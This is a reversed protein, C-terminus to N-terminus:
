CDRHKQFCKQKTIGSCHKNGLFINEKSMFIFFVEPKNYENEWDVIEEIKKQM